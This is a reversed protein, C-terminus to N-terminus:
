HGPQANKKLNLAMDIFSSISKGLVAMGADHVSELKYRAQAAGNLAYDVGDITVICWHHDRCEIIIEEHYFPWDGDFEEKRIRQHIYNENFKRDLEDKISRKHPERKNSKYRTTKERYNKTGLENDRLLIFPHYVSSYQLAIKGLKGMTFQRSISRVFKELTILIRRQITNIVEEHLEINEFKKMLEPDSTLIKSEYDEWLSKVNISHKKNDTVVDLNYYRAFKGFESLLYLLRDLNENNSLFDHDEQLVPIDNIKFYSNLIVRKLEGLDHGNDGGYRKLELFEPYKGEHEHAGFCIHCKMLREFGSSLLQFPLHYFDNVMDINQFEGFGIEILKFSTLLEDYLHLDKIVNKNM